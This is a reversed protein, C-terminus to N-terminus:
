KKNKNILQTLKEDMAEQDSRFSNLGALNM